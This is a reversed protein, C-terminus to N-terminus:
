IVYIYVLWLTFMELCGADRFTSKLSAQKINAAQVVITDLLCLKVDLLFISLIAKSKRWHIFRYYYYYYIIYYVYSIIGFAIIIKVNNEDRISTNLFIFNNEYLSISLCIITIIVCNVLVQHM